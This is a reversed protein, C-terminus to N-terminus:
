NKVKCLLSWDIYFDQGLCLSYKGFLSGHHEFLILCSARVECVIVINAIVIDRPAELKFSIICPEPSYDQNGNEEVSSSLLVCSELEVMDTLSGDEERFFPQVNCDTSLM